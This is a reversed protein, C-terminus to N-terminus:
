KAASLMELLQERTFEQGSEVLAKVSDFAQAKKAKSPAKDGGTQPTYDRVVTLTNAKVEDLNADDKANRLAARGGNKAATEIANNAFELAGDEGGCFTVFEAISEMRPVEVEVSIEGHTKHNTTVPKDAKVFKM